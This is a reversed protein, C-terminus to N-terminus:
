TLSRMSVSLGKFGHFLSVAKVAANTFIVSCQDHKWSTKCHPLEDISEFYCLAVMNLPWVMATSRLLRHTPQHVGVYQICSLVCACMSTQPRAFYVWQTHTNLSSVKLLQTKIPIPICMFGHTHTHTHRERWAACLSRGRSELSTRVLHQPLFNLRSTSLLAATISLLRLNGAASERVSTHIPFFSLLGAPICSFTSWAPRVASMTQIRSNAHASTETHTLCSCQCSICFFWQSCTKNAHARVFYFSIIILCIVM